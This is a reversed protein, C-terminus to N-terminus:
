CHSDNEVMPELAEVCADAQSNPRQHSDDTTNSNTREDKFLENVEDDSLFPTQVEVMQYGAKWIARGQVPPLDTARGNGLVLISSIDNVMQFCLVGTLNAKIQPDLARSDPRQTAVVLHIGIARGQRAVQSLIRRAEQAETAKAKGNALFMEAAEDVVILHRNFGPITVAGRAKPLQRKDKSLRLFQGIDRCNNAKLVEMRYEITDTMQSLQYLAKEMTNPTTVRSLREFLQAEVGGKFDVLTFTCHPDNFYLTTVLQRIFVSKGAGSQGAVLLHPVATLSSRVEKARTSGVIFTPAPIKKYNAIRCIEPMPKSSYIIDVTGQALNDRIEDIYVHLGSEIGQKTRNFDSLTLAAKSVCLKRTSPDVPKDFVYAPIKGLNNKLGISQFVEKLVKSLRERKLAENWAWFWFPTSIMAVYYISYWLASKPYFLEVSLLKFLRKDLGFKIFLQIAFAAPLLFHLPLTRKWAGRGLEIVPKSLTKCLTAIREWWDVKTVENLYSNM